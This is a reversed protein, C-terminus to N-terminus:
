ISQAKQPIDVDHRPDAEHRHQRQPLSGLLAHLAGFDAPKVLHHDFGPARGLERDREQGWGIVAVIVAENGAFRSRITRAVEYGDMEPMGIDFLV